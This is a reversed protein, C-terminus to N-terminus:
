LGVRHALREVLAVMADGDPREAIWLHKWRLGRLPQAANESISLAVVNECAASLGADAILRALCAGSRPSFVLVADLTGDRLAATAEDSLATAPRMAYVALERISLGSGALLSALDGAVTQGCPHIIHPRGLMGAHDTVTRALAAVDGGGVRPRPFGAALAARATAEGVTFCPLHGFARDGGLRAFGQVGNSSTFVVAGFDNAAPLSPSLELREMVPSLIPCHGGNRLRGAFRRSDAEPRTLLVRM